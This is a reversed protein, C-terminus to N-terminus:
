FKQKRLMWKQQHLGNWRGMWSDEKFYFLEVFFSSFLIGEKRANNCILVKLSYVTQYGSM